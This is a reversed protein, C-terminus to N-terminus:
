PGTQDWPLPRPPSSASAKLKAMGEPGLGQILSELLLIMIDPLDYRCNDSAVYRFGTAEAAIVGHATHDTTGDHPEGKPNVNNYPGRDKNGNPNFAGPQGYDPISEPPYHGTHDQLYRLTYDHRGEVYAWWRPYGNSDFVGALDNNASTAPDTM